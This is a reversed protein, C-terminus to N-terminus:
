STCINRRQCRHRAKLTNGITGAHWTDMTLTCTPPPAILSRAIRRMEAIVPSAEVYIVPSHLWELLAPNCKRLLRLAKFADWGSIDLADAIPREIVDRPVDLRLYRERPHVYIFRVDYDSEQSEIGWARSGAEAAYLIRVGHQQEILRLAQAIAAEM